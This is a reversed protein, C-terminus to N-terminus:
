VRLAALEARAAAAAARMQVVRTAGGAVHREAVEPSTYGDRNRLQFATVLCRRHVAAMEDSRSVQQRLIHIHEARTM